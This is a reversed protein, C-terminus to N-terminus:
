FFFAFGFKWEDVQENQNRNTFIIHEKYEGRLFFRRTLYYRLGGGVYASQELRDDPQVLTAKPEIRVIGTGLMVFPALRAQPYFIHALGLDVITGNSAKGLADFSIKFEDEFDDHASKAGAPTAAVGNYIGAVFDNYGGVNLSLAQGNPAAHAAGAFAVGILATTALLIKRM